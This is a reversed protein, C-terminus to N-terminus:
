SGEQTQSSPLPSPAKSFVNFEALQDPTLPPLNEKDRVESPAMWRSDVAVKYGDYRTKMDMRQLAGTNLKVYRPRPLLGYSWAEERRSIAPGLNMVLLQMNRQTVNAYTVSSGNTEADIMDSPVGLFRCVDPITAAMAELFRSESGKASLMNFEWDKGSVWVDGAAVSSKFNAKVAEAEDKKLTRDLHKLHGSPVTSNGFWARAFEQASLHTNLAAAGYAIPSLGVPCGSRTYQKEHWIQSPNYETGAIRIKEIKSGRGIFSVEDINALEIVSPLKAADRELIVGVTNGVSDLDVQSSYIWEQMRCESGGPELLVKPKAVELQVGAARRFVDVPMTSILDARLRLCGWVASHRLAQDRNMPGALTGMRRSTAETVAEHATLNGTRKFFLSM